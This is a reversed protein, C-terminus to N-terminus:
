RAPHFLSLKAKPTLSFETGSGVIDATDVIGVTVPSLLFGTDSDVSDATVPSLTIHFGAEIERAPVRRRRRM